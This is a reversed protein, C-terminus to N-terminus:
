PALLLPLEHRDDRHGAGHHDADHRLARGRLRGRRYSGVCRGSCLRLRVGRDRDGHLDVAHGLLAHLLRRQHHGARRARRRHPGGRCGGVPDVTIGSTNNIDVAGAVASLSTVTTAGTALIAVDGTLAKFAPAASSQTVLVRASTSGDVFTSHSVSRKWPHDPNLALISTNPTTAEAESSLLVAATIAVIGAALAFMFRKM